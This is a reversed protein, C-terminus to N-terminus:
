RLPKLKKLPVISSAVEYKKQQSELGALFDPPDDIRTQRRHILGRNRILHARDLRLAYAVTGGSMANVM